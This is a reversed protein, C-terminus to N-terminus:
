AHEGNPDLPCEIRFCSGGGVPTSIEVRGKMARLCEDVIALGIGSGKLPGRRRARGQVFPEFISARELEPVGPGQDSVSWWWRHGDQGWDFRIEGGPPSFHFTNSVLNGLVMDLMLSDTKIPLSTPPLCWRIEQERALAEYRAKQAASRAAVDVCEVRREVGHTVANYDLLQQILEQLSEANDQLIELVRQQAATLEGPIREALLAGAEMVASLPSKLEHTIHRLFNQKHQESTLLERRMWELREGLEVFDVPGRISVPEQWRRLGLDHIATALRRLPVSITLCGIAVLLVTGPVALFGILTLRAVVANFQEEGEALSQQMASEIQSGLEASLEYSRQLLGDVQQARAPHSAGAVLHEGASSMLGVLAALTVSAEGAEPMRVLRDLNARLQELKQHFLEAFRPEGLLQYQRASRELDKLQESVAVDLHNLAAMALVREHQAHTQLSLSWAAYAIAIVLPLVALLTAAVLQVRLSLRLWRRMPPQAAVSAMVESHKM